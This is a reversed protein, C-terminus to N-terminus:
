KKECRLHKQVTKTWRPSKKKAQCTIRYGRESIDETFQRAFKPPISMRGFTYGPAKQKYAVIKYDPEKCVFFADGLSNKADSERYIVDIEGIEFNFFREVDGCPPHNDCSIMRKLAHKPTYKGKKCTVFQRSVFKNSEDCSFKCTNGKCSAIVDETIKLKSHVEGCPTSTSKHNNNNWNRWHM